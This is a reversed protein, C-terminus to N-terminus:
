KNIKIAIVIRIKYRWYRSTAQQRITWHPQIHPQHSLPSMLSETKTIRILQTNPSYEQGVCTSYPSNSFTLFLSRDTKTSMWCKHTPRSIGQPPNSRQMELSNRIQLYDYTDTLLTSIEYSQLAGGTFNIKQYLRKAAAKAAEQEM